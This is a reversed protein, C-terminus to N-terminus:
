GPRREKTPPPWLVYDETEEDLGLLRRELGWMPSEPLVRTTVNRDSFRAKWIIDPKADPGDPYAIVLKWEDLAEPEYKGRDEMGPGRLRIRTRVSPHIYEQTDRLPRNTTSGDDPDTAYYTGPTRTTGGGIAYIGTMSKMIRGFSWPRIKKRQSEYYEFNENAQNIIYNDYFDLFPSCQAMM